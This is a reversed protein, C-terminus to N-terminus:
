DEDSDDKDFWGGFRELIRDAMEQSIAGKEVAQELSEALGEGSFTKSWSDRWEFIKPKDDGGFQFMTPGDKGGGFLGFGKMAGRKHGGYPGFGGKKGDKDYGDGMLWPPTGKPREALWEFIEDAKAQDILGKEVLADLKERLMDRRAQDLADEVTETDLGLIEAVRAAFREPKASDGDDDGGQQAMLTGGTVGVVLLGVAAATVIWRRKTM